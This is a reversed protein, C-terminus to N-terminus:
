LAIFWLGIFQIIVLFLLTKITFNKVILQKILRYYRKNIIAMGKKLDKNEQIINEM